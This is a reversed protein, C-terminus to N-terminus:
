DPFSSSSKNFSDIVKRKEWQNSDEQNAEKFFSKIIEVNFM